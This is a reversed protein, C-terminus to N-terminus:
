DLSSGPRSFGLEVQDIKVGLQQELFYNELIIYKTLVYNYFNSDTISIHQKAFYKKFSHKLL